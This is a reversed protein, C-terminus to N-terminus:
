KNVIRAGFPFLSIKALKVSQMAFPIGIISLALLAASILHMMALQWGGFLIWILNLLLSTGTENIQIDKGFPFLGFQAIKFCQLGIPFGVITLCWFFGVIIWSIWSWLGACLFWILNGIFTM